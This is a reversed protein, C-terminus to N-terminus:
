AKQGTGTQGTVTQGTGTQGTGTQGTSTDADPAPASEPAAGKALGFREVLRDAEDADLEIPEGPPVSGTETQVTIPLRVTRMALKEAPAPKTEKAM